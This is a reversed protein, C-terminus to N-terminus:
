RISRLLDGVDTWYRFYKSRPRVVYLTLWWDLTICDRDCLFREGLMFIWIDHFSVSDKSEKKKPRGDQKRNSWDNLQIASYVAAVIETFYFIGPRSCGPKFLCTLPRQM